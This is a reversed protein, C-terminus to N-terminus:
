WRWASCKSKFCPRGWLTRELAPRFRDDIYDVPEKAVAGTEPRSSGDERRDTGPSNLATEIVIDYFVKPKMRPLTAM